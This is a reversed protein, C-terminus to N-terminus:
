LQGEFDRFQALVQSVKPATDSDIRTRRALQEASSGQKPDLLRRVEDPDTIEAMRQMGQPSELLVLLRTGIRVLHLSQKSDLPVKGCVQVAGNPLPVSTRPVLLRQVLVVAAFVALVVGARRALWQPRALGRSTSPDALPAPSPPPLPRSAVPRSAVPRQAELHNAALSTSSRTWRTATASAGPFDSQIKTAATTLPESQALVIEGAVMLLGMTVTCIGVTKM